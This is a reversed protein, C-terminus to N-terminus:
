APKTPWIVEEVTEFDETIDRLSQRYTAWDAKVEVSLPSDALQTWDCELLLRNRVERIYDWTEEYLADAAEPVGDNDLWELYEQYDTNGSDAPITMIGNELIKLVNSSNKILKYSM